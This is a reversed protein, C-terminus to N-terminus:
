MNKRLEMTVQHVAPILDGIHDTDQPRKVCFNFYPKDPLKKKICRVTSTM